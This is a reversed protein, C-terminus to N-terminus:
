WKTGATENVGWKLPTAPVRLEGEVAEATEVRWAFGSFRNSTRDGQYGGWQLPTNIFTLARATPHFTLSKRPRFKWGEM